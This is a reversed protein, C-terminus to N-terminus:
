DGTQIIYIFCSMTDPSRINLATESDHFESLGAFDWSIWLFTRFVAFNALFRILYMDTCCIQFKHWSNPSNLQRFSAFKDQFKMVVVFSCTGCSGPTFSTAFFQASTIINCTFAKGNAWKKLAKKNSYCIIIETLFMLCVQWILGFYWAFEDQTITDTIRM